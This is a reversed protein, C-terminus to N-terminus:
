VCRGGTWGTFLESYMDKLGKSPRWGLSCLKQTSLALQSAAPYQVASSPDANVIVRQNRRGFVEIVMEAMQRISCYTMENAVNYAEGSKGKSLLLLLAAVADDISVYMNSKEGSTALKVNEGNLVSRAIHAFIRKDEKSVGAGFTQALRAVTIRLGYEAAYSACLTEALQKAQPYSSRLSMANLAGGESEVIPNSRSQDGYVEMSSVYVMSASNKKAVELMALTGGFISKITEVPRRIFYGSSTPAACHIIGDCSEIEPILGDIADWLMPEVDTRELICDDLRSTSRVPVIVTIGSHATDNRGLLSRLVAGGVLGSAGTVVITKGDIYDWPIVEQSNGM